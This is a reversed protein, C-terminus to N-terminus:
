FKWNKKFVIYVLIMFFTSFWLLIYIFFSNDSYPLDINMGYFSTILTLPLLLASFLALVKIIFNTKIDIITKFAEEISDIRATQNEELCAEIDLEHFNYEKLFNVKETESLWVWDIWRVWNIKIKRIM